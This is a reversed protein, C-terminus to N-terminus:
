CGALFQPEWGLLACPKVSCQHCTLQTAAVPASRFEGVRVDKWARSSEVLLATMSLLFLDESVSKMRRPRKGPM